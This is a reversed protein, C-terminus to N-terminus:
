GSVNEGLLATDNYEIWKRIRNADGIRSQKGASDLLVIIMPQGSIEAQMVLCRGAENIFGTKSLGIVWDSGRVLSNTNVFNIPNERGYLTIEQSATTTVQRIEPYHYAANVMKVLDEATSVNNSDLGTADYFRTSKMGLVDAKRNMAVMFAGIGGPYNRALASAARNESSMLALQLLEGRTLQTGVNLRSHTRKIYDVDEDGIFLLDDMPLHADLMVMATMLKTVSAIPTSQSTNKAYIIEGTLQNIVLAKSSALELPGSGDYARPVIMSVKQVHVRSKKVGAVNRNLKYKALDYNGAKNKQYKTHTVKIHSVVHKHTKKTAAYSLMPSLSLTLATYLLILKRM